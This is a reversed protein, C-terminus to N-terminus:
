KSSCLSLNIEDIGFLERINIFVSFNLHFQIRNIKQQDSKIIEHKDVNNRNIRFFVKKEFKATAISTRQLSM